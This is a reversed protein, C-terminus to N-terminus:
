GNEGERTASQTLEAFEEEATELDALAVGYGREHLRRMVHEVPADPACEALDTWDTWTRTMREM